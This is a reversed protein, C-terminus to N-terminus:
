DGRLREMRGLQEIQLEISARMGNRIVKAEAPGLGLTSLDSDMANVWVTSVHRYGLDAMLRREIDALHGAGYILALTRVEPENTIVEELDRMVIDNRQDLIVEMLNGMIPNNKSLLEESRPLTEVLMAKFVERLTSSFGILRVAGGALRGSIGEGSMIDFFTEFDGEADRDRMTSRMTAPTIDSNRWNSGTSDMETLQFNLDLSEALKQQVGSMELGSRRARPLYNPSAFIDADVGEGGLTGDAGLSAIYAVEGANVNGNDLDGADVASVIFPRRWGDVLMPEVLPLTSADLSNILEDMSGADHESALEALFEARRQTIEARTQDTPDADWRPDLRGGGGVGEFLVVDHADLLRQLEAYYEGKGIHVAAAITVRPGDHGVPEYAKVAMELRSVLGDQEEVLRVFEGDGPPVAALGSALGGALGHALGSVLVTGVAASACAIRRVCSRAPWRTSM